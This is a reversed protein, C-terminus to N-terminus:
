LLAIDKFEFNLCFCAQWRQPTIPPNPVPSRSFLRIGYHTVAPYATDIWPPENDIASHFFLPDDDLAPIRVSPTFSGKVIALPSFEECNSYERANAESTLGSSFTGPGAVVYLPHLDRLTATLTTQGAIMTPTFTYDVSMLRYNHFLSAYSAYDSLENLSFRYVTNLSGSIPLTFTDDVFQSVRLVKSPRHSAMLPVLLSSPTDHYPCHNFLDLSTCYSCTSPLVTLSGRSPRAM